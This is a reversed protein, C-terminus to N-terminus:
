PTGEEAIEADQIRGSAELRRLDEYDRMASRHQRMLMNLKADHVKANPSMAYVEALLADRDIGIKLDFFEESADRRDPDVSVMGLALNVLDEDTVESDVATEVNSGRYLAFAASVLARDV